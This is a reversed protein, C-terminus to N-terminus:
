SLEVTRRVWTGYVYPAEARPRVGARLEGVLRPRRALQATTYFFSNTIAVSAEADQTFTTTYTTWRGVSTGIERRFRCQMSVQNGPYETPNLNPRGWFEYNYHIGSSVPTRSIRQVRFTPVSLAFKGGYAGGVFKISGWAAGTYKNAGYALGM